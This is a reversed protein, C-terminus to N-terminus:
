VNDNTATEKLKVIDIGKGDNMVSICNEEQNICINIRSVLSGKVGKVRVYQDEANVIIEDYIKYLAPVYVIKKKLVSDDDTVIYTELDTAEVSGVYSDPLQFVHEVHSLKKYTQTDKKLPGYHM